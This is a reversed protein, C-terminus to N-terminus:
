QKRALGPIHPYTEKLDSTQEKQKPSELKIICVQMKSKSAEQNTVRNQEFLPPPLPVHNGTNQFLQQFVPGRVTLVNFAFIPEMQGISSARTGKQFITSRKFNYHGSHSVKLKSLDVKLM